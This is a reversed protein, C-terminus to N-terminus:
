PLVQEIVGFMFYGAMSNIVIFEHFTAHHKGTIVIGYAWILSWVMVLVGMLIQVWLINSSYDFTTKFEYSDDFFQYIARGNIVFLIGVLAAMVAKAQTATIHVGFLFYNLIFAFM